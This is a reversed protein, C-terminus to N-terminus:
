AEQLLHAPTGFVLDFGWTFIMTYIPFFVILAMDMLLAEILSVEFWWAILPILLTVLCIQFGLAHLVRRAVTRERRVQRVEWAEFALNYFFNVTIATTTIMMSLALSHAGSKGSVYSLFTSSILIATAEFLGLYTVRRKWGQM